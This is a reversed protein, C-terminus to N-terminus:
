KDKMYPLQITFTSGVNETSDIIIKGNMKRIIERAIWLGLGTGPIDVTKENKIRYFQTFLGKQDHSSMGIGTDKIITSLKGDAMQYSITISGKQTYKIANGILNDTVQRLREPDIFVLPMNPLKTETLALGKEKAQDESTLISARIIESIDYPQMNFQMRGQELRFVDLTETLLLDLRQINVYIKELHLKTKQDFEGTLGEFMMSIYGKIAAMPTKMEHTAISIFDDKMKDVEKLRKFLVTYEFFRFHNILLLLVLFITIGLIILSTNLNKRNITDTDQLSLTMDVLAIKQNSANQLANTTQWFRSPPTKTTDELLKTIPKNQLWTSTYDSSTLKLGINQRDTSAIVTFDDANQTMVTIKTIEPNKTTVKTIKSQLTAQDKITESISDGLLSEVLIAKNQLISDMNDNSKRIQWLANAIIIVPILVILIISYIFQANDKLFKGVREM